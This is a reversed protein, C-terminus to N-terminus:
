VHGGRADLFGAEQSSTQRGGRFFANVLRTMEHQMTHMDRARHWRILTTM